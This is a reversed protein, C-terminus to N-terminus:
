TYNVVRSAGPYALRTRAGSRHYLMDVNQATAGKIQQSERTVRGLGNYHWRVDAHETGGNTLIALTKRGLGDYEFREVITASSPDDQKKTLRSGGDYMYLTEIARQDKRKMPTNGFAYWVDVNDGAGDHDEYTTRTLRGRADYVYDTDQGLADTIRTMRGSKDYLSDTHRDMGGADDTKRTLRSLGDYVSVTSVSEADTVKTQRSLGDYYVVTVANDATAAIDGDAGQNTSRTLRGLSDYLSDVVFTKNGGGAQDVEYNTRRTARGRADYELRVYNALADTTKTRRGAKDCIANASGAASVRYPTGAVTSRSHPIRARERITSLIWCASM